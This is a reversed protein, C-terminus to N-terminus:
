IKHLFYYVVDLGSQNDGPLDSTSHKIGYKHPLTQFAGVQGSGSKGRACM